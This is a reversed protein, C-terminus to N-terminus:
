LLYVFAYSYMFMYKVDNIMLSIFILIVKYWTFSSFYFVSLLLHQPSQLSIPIRMCLQHSYLINHNNQFITQYNRLFNFMLNITHNLLTVGLYIGLFISFIHQGWFKYMFTWLLIIWLVWFIFVVLHRGFSSDILFTTYRYPLINKLWSLSHIM